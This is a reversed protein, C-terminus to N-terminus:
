TSIRDLHDRTQYKMPKDCWLAYYGFRQSTEQQTSAERSNTLLREKQTICTLLVCSNNKTFSAPPLQIYQTSAGKIISLSEIISRLESM